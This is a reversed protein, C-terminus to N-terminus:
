WNRNKLTSLKKTERKNTPVIEYIIINKKTIDAAINLEKGIGESIIKELVSFQEEGIQRRLDEMGARSADIDEDPTGDAM